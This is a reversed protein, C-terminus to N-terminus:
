RRRRRWVVGGLFVALGFGFMAVSSPEPVTTVIDLSFDVNPTRDGNFKFTLTDITSFSADGQATFESFPIFHEFPDSHNPIYGSYTFIGGLSSGASIEVDLGEPVAGDSGTFRLAFDTNAGGDTLDVSGLEGEGESLGDYTLTVVSGSNPQGGFAQSGFMFTGNGDFVNRDVGIVGAAVVSEPDLKISVSISIEREEGLISGDAAVYLYDWQSGDILPLIFVTGQIPLDFSDIVIMEARVPSVSAALCCASAGVVAWWWRVQKCAM